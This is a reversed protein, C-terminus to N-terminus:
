MVVYMCAVLHLENGPIEVALALPAGVGCLAPCFDTGDLSAIDNKKEILNQEFSFLFMESTEFAGAAVEEGGAGQVKVRGPMAVLALGPDLLLVDSHQHM